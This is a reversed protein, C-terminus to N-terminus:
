RSKSHRTASSVDNIGKDICMEDYGMLPNGPSTGYRGGSEEYIQEAKLQLLEERLQDDILLYSKM